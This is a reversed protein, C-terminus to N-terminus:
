ALDVKTKCPAQLLEPERHDGRSREQVCPVLPRDPPQSVILRLFHAVFLRRGAEQNECFWALCVQKQYSPLICVERLLVKHRVTDKDDMMVM